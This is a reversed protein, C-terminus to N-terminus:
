RAVTVIRWSDQKLKDGNLSAFQHIESFGAIGLLRVLEHPSYIRINYYVSKSGPIPGDSGYVDAIAPASGILTRTLKWRSLSLDFEHDELLLLGNLCKWKRPKQSSIRMDRNTVDLILCGGPALVKRAELLVRTNEDDDDFYGFSTFISIVADYNAGTPARMDREVWDINLKEVAANQQGKQLLKSSLDQVTVELGRRALPLAIRGAGGAMDLVRSKPGLNALKMLQTAQLDAIKELEPHFLIKDNLYSEVYWPSSGNM